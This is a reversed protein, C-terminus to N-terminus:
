RIRSAPELSQRWAEELAAANKFGYERQLANAQGYRQADRLYATLVKEGKMRVLFDVLAVSQVHFATVSKSPVEKQSILTESRLLEGDELMRKATRLYRNVETDSTNLAAMGLEVWKPPSQTPFLDALVVYTLERPLAIDKCNEDDVRLDIRRASVSGDALKVEARGTSNAPQSTAQRFEKETVHLYVDCKPKWDGGPPGSWKKFTALRVDEAQQLLENALTKDSRYLVRFSSGDLMKWGAPIAEVAALRKEPKTGSRQRAVTLIKEAAIALGKQNPASALAEEIETVAESATRSDTSNNLKDTALKVRCYAWAATQEESFTQKAKAAEDFLKKAEAFAPASGDRAQNFAKTALKLSDDNNNASPISLPQGEPHPAPEPLRQAFGIAAFSLCGVVAFATRMSMM